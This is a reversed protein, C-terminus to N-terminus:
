AAGAFHDRIAVLHFQAGRPFVGRNDHPGYDRLSDTAPGRPFHILVVVSSLLALTLSWYLLSGAQGGYFGSFLYPWPQSRTSQAVVYKLSFDHTVFAYILTLSSLAVLVAVAVVANRASVVLEPVRLRAGLVSAVAGFLAALLGIFLLATGINATM